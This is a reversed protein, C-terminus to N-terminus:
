AVSRVWSQLDEAQIVGLKRHVADGHRNFVVTFPLAGALNGLTRGLDIGAVGALGIQFDLPRKQLFARVPVLNDIALGVVQWGRAQQERHFRDLLALESVCPPCWTAWFNLLLPRGRLGAMALYGGQPTEFRM